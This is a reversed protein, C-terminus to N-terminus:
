LGLTAPLSYFDVLEGASVQPQRVAVRHRSKKKLQERKLLNARALAGNARLVREPTVHRGEVGHAARSFVRLGAV